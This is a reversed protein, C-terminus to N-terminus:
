PVPFEACFRDRAQSVSLNRWGDYGLPPAIAPASNPQSECPNRGGNLLYRAALVSLRPAAYSTGILDLSPHKGLQMVEGNNSCFGRCPMSSPRVFVGPEPDNQFINYPIQRSSYIGEQASVSVGSDWLAPMLPFGWGENGAAAISIVNERTVSAYVNSDSKSISAMKKPVFGSLLEFLPGDAVSYKNQYQEQTLSRSGSELGLTQPMQNLVGTLWLDWFRLIEYDQDDYSGKCIDGFTTRENEISIGKNELLNFLVSGNMLGIDVSPDVANCVVEMYDEVSKPVCDGKPIMVWSMNIVIGQTYSDMYELMEFAETIRDAVIATDFNGIDVPVLRIYGESTEWLQTLRDFNNALKANRVRVPDSLIDWLEIDELGDVQRGRSSLEATITSWVTRGHLGGGAGGSKYASGEPRIVCGEGKPYVERFEELSGSERVQEIIPEDYTFDDVVLIAVAEIPDYGDDSAADSAGSDGAPAAAPAACAALFMTFLMLFLLIAFRNM